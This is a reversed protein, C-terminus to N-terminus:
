ETTIAPCPIAREADAHYTYERNGHRLKLVWGETQVAAYQEGPEPCGLSADDWTVPESGAMRVERASVGLRGALDKQAALMQKAFPITGGAPGAPKQTQRCIFARGKAEHVTHLRGEARLLVRHGPTIVQLYARDPQPCGVGSDPWDVAEISEVTIATRDIGLDRALADIALTTVDQGAPASTKEPQEAGASVGKCAVLMVVVAAALPFSLQRM